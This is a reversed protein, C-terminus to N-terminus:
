RLASLFHDVSNCEIIRDDSVLYILTSIKALPLDSKSDTFMKDIKEIGLKSLAICKEVGYCNYEVGNVKQNEDYSLRSGVIKVGFGFLPIIYDEFSASVVFKNEFKNFEFLCKQNFGIRQAYSGSLRRVESKEKGILFLKVGLDKLFGNSVLGIKHLVMFICYMGLRLKQFPSGHSCYIYYDLLTDKCTLTKDFDFVVIM